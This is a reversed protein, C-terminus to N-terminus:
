RGSIMPFNDPADIAFSQITWFSSASIITRPSSAPSDSMCQRESPCTRSCGSQMRVRWTSAVTLLRRFRGRMSVSLLASVLIFLCRLATTLRGRHCNVGGGFRRAAHSRSSVCTGYSSSTHSGDKDLIRFNGTPTPHTPRGGLLAMKRLLTTGRMVTAVHGHLHVEIRLPDSAPTGHPQHPTPGHGSM